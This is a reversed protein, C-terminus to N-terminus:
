QLQYPETYAQVEQGAPNHAPTSKFKGSATNKTDEM